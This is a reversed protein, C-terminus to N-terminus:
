LVIAAANNAMPFSAIKILSVTSAQVKKKAYMITMKSRKLGVQLAISREQVVERKVTQGLHQVNLDACKIIKTMVICQITHIGVGFVQKLHTVLTLIEMPGTSSFLDKTVSIKAHVRQVIQEPCLVYIAANKIM